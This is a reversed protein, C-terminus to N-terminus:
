FHFFHVVFLYFLTMLVGQKIHISRLIIISCWNCIKELSDGSFSQTCALVRNAVTKFGCDQLIKFHTDISFNLMTQFPIVHLWGVKRQAMDIWISKFCDM